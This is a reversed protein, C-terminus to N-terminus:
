PLFLSCCSIANKWVFVNNLMLVDGSLFENDKKQVIKGFIQLVASDAGFKQRKTGLIKGRVVLYLELNLTILNINTPAAGM